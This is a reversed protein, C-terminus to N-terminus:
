TEPPLTAALVKDRVLPHVDYWFDDDLYCLVLHSDLFRLVLGQDELEVAHLSRHEAIAKLVRIHDAYLPSYARSQTTILRELREAQPVQQGYLHIAEVVMNLLDRLYGGSALVLSEMQAATLIEQWKGRRSVLHTLREITLKDPTGDRHRVRCSSWAQVAGNSFQAALNDAQLALSAPVSLVMHTGPLQLDRAHGFFLEQIAQFVKAQSGQGRIHELSYGRRAAARRARSDAPRGDHYDITGASDVEILGTLGAQAVAHEFVAQATPSRCINGTCVFLIRPM